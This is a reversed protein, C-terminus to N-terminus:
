WSSTRLVIETALEHSADRAIDAIGDLQVVRFESYVHRGSVDAQVRERSSGIMVTTPLEVAPCTSDLVRGESDPVAPHGRDAVVLSQFRGFSRAALLWALDAGERSGVLNAWGLKLGDLIGIVAAEDLGDIAEPVVTRLGSNHLRECVKDFVTAPDGKGPLLVVVHTGAPGDVRVTCTGEGAAVQIFEM